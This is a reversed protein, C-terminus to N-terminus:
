ESKETTKDAQLMQDDEAKAIGEEVLQQNASRGGDDEDASANTPAQYGHSGPVPDWRESEPLAEQRATRVDLEPKVTLDQEAQPKTKM